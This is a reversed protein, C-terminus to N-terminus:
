RAEEGKLPSALSAACAAARTPTNQKAALAPVGVRRALFRSDDGGQLPLLLEFRM